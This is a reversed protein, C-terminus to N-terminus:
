QIKRPTFLCVFHRYEIAEIVHTDGRGPYRRLFKGNDALMVIQGNQLVTFDFTARANVEPYYAEITGMSSTPMHGLYKQNYARLTLKGAAPIGVIFKCSDTIDTDVAVLPYKRPTIEKVSLYRFNDARLTITNGAEFPLTPYHHQLELKDRYVSRSGVAIGQNQSDVASVNGVSRFGPGFVQRIWQGHVFEAGERFRTATEWANFHVMMNPKTTASIAGAATIGLPTTPYAEKVLSYQLEAPLQERVKLEPNSEPVVANAYRILGWFIGVTGAKADYVLALMQPDAHTGIIQMPLVQHTWNGERVNLHHVRGDGSIYSVALHGTNDSGASRPDWVAAVAGAVHHMTNVPDAHFAGDKWFVYHLLGNEGRYFAAPKNYREDFLATIAGKVKGGQPLTIKIKQWGAPAHFYYLQGDADPIFLAPHNTTKDYCAAFTALSHTKSEAFNKFTDTDEVWKGNDYFRFALQLNGDRRYFMCPFLKKTVSDIRECVAVWDSKLKTFPQGDYNARAWHQLFRATAIQGKPFAEEYAALAPAYPIPKDWHGQLDEMMKRVKREFIDKSTRATNLTIAPMSDSFDVTVKGPDCLLKKRDANDLNNLIDDALNEFRAHRMDEKTPIQLSGEFGIGNAFNAAHMPQTLDTFYHAAIGLYFGSKNLSAAQQNSRWTHHYNAATEQNNLTMNYANGWYNEFIAPSLPVQTAAYALILGANTQGIHKHNDPNFFHSTYVPSDFLLPVYCYNRYPSRYDAAWLGNYFGRRFEAFSWLSHFASGPELATLIWIAMEVQTRHGSDNWLVGAEESAEHSHGCCSFGAFGSSEILQKLAEIKEADTTESSFYHDKSKEKM